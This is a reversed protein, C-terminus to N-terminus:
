YRLELGFNLGQAWFDSDHFVFEPRAPGALVRPPNIQSTNVALDIQNGPRAVRNWYLFTYGLYIRAHETFQYGINFGTEPVVSFTNHNFHGINTPQTLLGGAFSESGLGPVSVRTIGSVDAIEHTTGLAVSGRMNLFWPGWHYETRMGLQGGYFQSRTHFSDAVQFTTGAAMPSTSPILLAENIDLHEDLDLYRFGGYLDLQFRLGRYINRVLNAEAGWLDSRSSVSVSGVLPLLGPLSPVLPNAVLEADQMNATVNFFPRALLPVGTSSVVLNSSQRGLFLGSGELAWTQCDDMWWGVTARVGSRLNNLPDSQGFVVTTGPQGLVGLSTPPSTTVLPPLSAGKVWWLLYDAGVYLSTGPTCRSPCCASPCCVDPCPSCCDGCGSCDDPKGVSWAGGQPIPRLPAAAVPPVVPAPAPAAAPESTDDIAFSTTTAIAKRSALGPGSASAVPDAFLPRGVPMPQAEASQARFLPAPAAGSSEYSAPTVRQDAVAPQGNGPPLSAALPLPRDLSVTALGKGPSQTTPQASSAPNTSGLSVPRDLTVAPSRSPTSADSTAIVVHGHSAAPRV